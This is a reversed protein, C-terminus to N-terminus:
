ELKFGGRELASRMEARAVARQFAESPEILGERVLGLLSDNLLTMGVNKGTQMISTIQFTKGERIMNAVAPVGVLIELAAVRGGGIKKCLTQAVVGKLSESLMVRVQAQRDTPFQDIVRDVTSVATNTHLTGFVLHGTEATEIAISVTELDRMEGVLVIDPDERLAARLAASFSETHSHIERQNILCRQPEHVFEVPDEITIVHDSRSKNILDIMAALTTSKGSGTPGTVVVLGKELNCLDRVVPPLKLQDATLIKSPIVRLVGGVGRRDRFVNVRFRAVGELEYAYDADHTAAFKERSAVPAIEMLWQRLTDSTLIAGYGPVAMIDGDKRMLPALKATLHLDSGKQDVLVRLIPDILHPGSPLPEPEAAVLRVPSRAPELEPSMAVAVAASPHVSARAYTHAAGQAAIPAMVAHAAATAVALPAAIHPAGAQTPAGHPALGQTSVAQAGGVTAPRAPSPPAYRPAEPSGFREPGPAGFRDQAFRETVQPARVPERLPEVRALARRAIEAEARAVTEPPPAVSDLNLEMPAAEAAEVYSALEAQIAAPSMPGAATRSRIPQGVATVPPGGRPQSPARGAPMGTVVPRAAQMVSDLASEMVMGPEPRATPPARRQAASYPRVTVQLKRDRRVLHVMVAGTPASYPFSVEGADEFIRACDPPTIERVLNEIQDTREDQALITREGASSRVRVPRGSEFILEQGQDRHLAGVFRDIPRIGSM